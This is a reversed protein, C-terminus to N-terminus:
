GSIDENFYAAALNFRTLSSLSDASFLETFDQIKSVDWIGIPWGYRTAVLTDTSIDALYVDVAGRLEATTEFPERSICTGNANLGVCGGSLLNSCDYALRWEGDVFNVFSCSQCREPNGFPSTSVKVECDCNESTPIEFNTDTCNAVLFASDPPMDQFDLSQTGTYLCGVTTNSCDFIPPESTSGGGQLSFPAHLQLIDYDASM